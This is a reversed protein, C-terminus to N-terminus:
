GGQVQCGGRRLLGLRAAGPIPSDGAPGNTEPLTPGLRIQPTRFRRFDRRPQTLVISGLAGLQSAVKESPQRRHDRGRLRGDGEGREFVPLIVFQKLFIGLALTGVVLQSPPSVRGLTPSWNVARSVRVVVVRM